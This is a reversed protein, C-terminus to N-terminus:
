ISNYNIPNFINKITSTFTGSQKQITNHLDIYASQLNHVERVQHQIKRDTNKM